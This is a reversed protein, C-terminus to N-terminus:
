STLAFSSTGAAAIATVGELANGNAISCTGTSNPACVDGPVSRNIGAGAPTGDGLQNNLNNGWSLVTGNTLLALSHSNGTAISVVGRLHGDSTCFTSGPADGSRCVVGVPATRNVTTGDGIQGNGNAGWSRMTGDSRLAFVTQTKAVIAVVGSGPG